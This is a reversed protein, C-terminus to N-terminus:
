LYGCVKVEPESFILERRLARGILHYNFRVEEPRVYEPLVVGEDMWDEISM